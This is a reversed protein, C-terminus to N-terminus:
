KLRMFIQGYDVAAVVSCLIAVCLVTSTFMPFLVATVLLLFQGATAIKGSWRSSMQQFSSWSRMLAAYAAICAVTLDRALILPIWWLPFIGTWALTGLASLVFMKDAVADLLGGQWSTVQWRRALWGDLADSCGSGCILWIWIQPPSFPFICALGLRSLSILNPILTQLRKNM